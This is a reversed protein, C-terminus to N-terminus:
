PSRSFIPFHTTLTITRKPTLLRAMPPANNVKPKTSEPSTPGQHVLRQDPPENDSLCSWCRSSIEVYRPAGRSSMEQELQATASSRAMRTKTISPLLADVMVHWVATQQM